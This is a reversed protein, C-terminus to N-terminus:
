TVYRAEIYITKGHGLVVEGTLCSSDGREAVWFGRSM